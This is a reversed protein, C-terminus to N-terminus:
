WFELNYGINWVLPEYLRLTGMVLPVPPVLLSVQQNV